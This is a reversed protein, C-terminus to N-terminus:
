AAQGHKIYHAVKALLAPPPEEPLLGEAIARDLMSRAATRVLEEYDPRAAREAAWRDLESQPIRRGPRGRHSGSQEVVTALTGDNTLRYVWAVSIDLYVAAGVPTFLREHTTV